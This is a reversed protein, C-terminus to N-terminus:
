DEYLKRNLTFDGYVTLLITHDEERIFFHAEDFRTATGRVYLYTPTPDDSDNDIEIKKYGAKRLFRGWEETVQDLYREDSVRLWQIRKVEGNLTREINGNEFDIDVPLASLLSGGFSFGSIYPKPEYKEYLEDAQGKQQGLAFLPIFLTLLLKKM